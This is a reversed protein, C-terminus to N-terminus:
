CAARFLATEPVEVTGEWAPDGNEQTVCFPHWRERSTVAIRLQLFCKEVQSVMVNQFM